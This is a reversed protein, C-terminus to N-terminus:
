VRKKILGENTVAYNMSRATKLVLTKSVNCAKAITVINNPHNKFQSQKIVIELENQSVLAKEIVEDVEIVKPKKGGIAYMELEKQQAVIIKHAEDLKEKYNSVTKQLMTDPEKQIELLSDYEEKDLLIVHQMM